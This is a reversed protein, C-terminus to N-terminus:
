NCLISSELGVFEHFLDDDNVDVNKNTKKTNVYLNLFSKDKQYKSGKLKKLITNTISPATFLVSNPDKNLKNFLNSLQKAKLGDNIEYSM